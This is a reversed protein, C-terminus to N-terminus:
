KREGCLGRSHIWLGGFGYVVGGDDDVRVSIGRLAQDVLIEIKGAREIAALQIEIRRLFAVEARLEEGDPDLRLQVFAVIGFPSKLQDISDILLRRLMRILHLHGEGSRVDLLSMALVLQRCQHAYFAAM